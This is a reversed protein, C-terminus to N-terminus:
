LSAKPKKDRRTQLIEKAMKELKGAVKAVLDLSVSPPMPDNRLHNSVYRASAGKLGFRTSVIFAVAEAEIEVTRHNLERRSPWWNDKDSGLHGLQIRALEHCLVGVRSPEDLGDHIAIRMKWGGEGTAITAFGANTTSLKKFDVRIKDHAQANQILRTLWESKWDGEFKAFESIEKPFPAGETQDLDYVLMVPHMPALILMPRADEKLKREFRKIWDPETAYFGCTPNQQRVLMNNFPAYDRFAGMFSVMDQFEKSGRYSRSQQLLSDITSKIEKEPSEAGRLAETLDESARVSGCYARQSQTLDKTDQELAELVAVLEWRGKLGVKTEVDHLLEWASPQRGGDLAELVAHKVPEFLNLGYLLETQTSPENSV